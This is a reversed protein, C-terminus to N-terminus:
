RVPLKLIRATTMVDGFTDEVEALAAKHLADKDISDGNTRTIARTASADSAVLVNYGLPAADRAAGAVCAHTMLGSIILNEIGARKLRKDLDTSGFVSVTTKQLVGDRARPQMQPHFKVGEGGQAFVASGPPAIHQIHYVPMKHEDAFAILERAKDLAAVGDPIPMKGTFYENQFDIILLATKGAPLQSVAQAGSMARITPNSEALAGASAIIGSFACATLFRRTFRQM